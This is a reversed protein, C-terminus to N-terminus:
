KVLKAIKGTLDIVVHPKIELKGADIVFDALKKVKRSVDSIDIIFKNKKKLLCSFLILKEKALLKSLDNNTLRVSIKDDNVLGKHLKLSNKSKLIFTFPGPLKDIYKSNAHLNRVIWQKSHAILSPVGEIEAGILKELSEMCDISCFLEYAENGPYVFIKGQKLHHIIEAPKMPEM